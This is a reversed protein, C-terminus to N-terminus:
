DSTKNVCIHLDRIKWWFWESDNVWYQHVLLLRARNCYVFTTTRTVRWIKTIFHNSSNESTAVPPTRYFLINKFIDSFERSFVQTPTQRAVTTVIPRCNDFKFNIVTPHCKYSDLSLQLHRGYNKSCLM